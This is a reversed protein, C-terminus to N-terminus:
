KFSAKHEANRHLILGLRENVMKAELSISVKEWLLSWEVCEGAGIFITFDSDDGRSLVLDVIGSNVVDACNWGGNGREQCQLLEIALGIQEDVSACAAPEPGHICVDTVDKQGSTDGVMVPANRDRRELGIANSKDLRHRHRLQLCIDTGLLAHTGSPIRQILVIDIVKVHLLVLGTHLVHLRRGDPPRTLQMLHGMKADLDDCVDNVPVLGCLFLKKLIKRVGGLAKLFRQGLHDLKYTASIMILQLATM